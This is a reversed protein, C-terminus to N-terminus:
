YEVSWDKFYEKSQKIFEPTNPDPNESYTLKYYKQDAKNFMEYISSFLRYITRGFPDPSDQDKGTEMTDNVKKLESNAYSLGAYIEMKEKETAKKFKFAIRKFLVATSIKLRYLVIVKRLNFYLAIPFVLFYAVAKATKIMDNTIVIEKKYAIAEVTKLSQNNIFNYCDPSNFDTNAETFM